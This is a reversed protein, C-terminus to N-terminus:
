NVNKNLKPNQLREKVGNDKINNFKVVKINQKQFDHSHDHHDIDNECSMFVFSLLLFGILIKFYNSM